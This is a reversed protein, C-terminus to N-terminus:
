KTVSKIPRQIFSGKQSLGSVKSKDSAGGKRKSMMTGGDPTHNQRLFLNLIWGGRMAEAIVM